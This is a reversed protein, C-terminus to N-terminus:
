GDIDEEAWRPNETLGFINGKVLWPYWHREDVTEMVDAAAEGDVDFLADVKQTPSLDPNELVARFAPHLYFSPGLSWMVILVQGMLDRREIGFHRPVTLGGCTLDIQEERRSPDYHEPIAKPMLHDVFWEAYVLDDMPRSMIQDLTVRFAM